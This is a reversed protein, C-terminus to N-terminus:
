RIGGGNLNAAPPVRVTPAKNTPDTNRRISELSDATRRFSDATELDQQSPTRPATVPVSGAMGASFYQTTETAELAAARRRLGAAVQENSLNGQSRLEALTASVTRDIISVGGAALLPGVGQRNVASEAARLNQIHLNEAEAELRRRQQNIQVSGLSNTRQIVSEFAEQSEAPGGVERISTELSLAERTQGTLLNRVVPFYAAEFTAKAFDQDGFKGGKLFRDRLEPNQQMARIGEMPSGLGRDEIQKALMLAATRSSAGTFDGTERTLTGVIAAAEAAQAGFSVLATVGPITNSAQHRINAVRGVNGASEFFGIAQEATWGQSRQLDAAGGVMMALTEDSEEPAFQLAARVLKGLDMMEDKTTPGKASVAQEWLTAVRVQRTGTQKALNAVERELAGSSLLGGSARGLASMAPALAINADAALQQKQKMEEWEAKLLQASALAASMVSGVGTMGVVFDKVKLAAAEMGVSTTEAAKKSSREVNDMKRALTDLNREMKQMTRVVAADNSSWQIEAKNSAM